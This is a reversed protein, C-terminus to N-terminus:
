ESRLTEAPNSAAARISKYGVTVLAIVLTSLIGIAFATWGIDIRYAFGKLWNNMFYWAVPAAIIFALMILKVFEKSFMVMISATSAGLVKRIGVEKLKQNAMFSILGYLGLCGIFISVGAFVKFLTFTREDQRYLSALHEDLFQYEFYYEPFLETWHKEIAKITENFNDGRVQIGCEYYFTPLNMLIVPKINEHLSAIHFDGVVGIVEAKISYVGTIIVKGVAEAPNNFGLQRAAAETIVYSFKREGEPVSPDAMKEDAETFWRGAKLPINYTELYHHDVPKIGTSYGEHSLDKDALTFSTGFNNTSTPAGLSFTMTSIGPLGELRARLSEMLEKKPEPIPINIIAERSFGLSKSKFFNMQQAVIITGIILVQAILFQFVVLVKRVSAGSSGQSSIKNKLVAVPNFGSLIIAPYFGSLLSAFVVLAVLFVLLAPSTFLDLSLDKDLFGNLWSLLWESACLSILTSLLTLLLTESLFYFTLQSRKAGLTKRIGIEKSKRIALATALNIFNICAIALIFVGLVGMVILESLNINLGGGPTEAYTKNFHIDKLPQLLFTKRTASEKDMYKENFIKMRTEVDAKLMGAPLVVYTYGAATISWQDLPMGAIFDKTLSPFSIVMSFRIHSNSPPDQIIGAVDVDFLNNIRLTGQDKGGLLTNALSQTIFVKGPQGLDVRPNGSLVNFDFIDFFLSDAFIARSVKQRTDNVKVTVEDQYHIQTTLPIDQFDNRFAKAMPYPTTSGYSEGDADRSIQVVRYISEHKEHFRDFAIEYRIILFIVICSTIGISLGLMNILTYNRNRLFNRLTILLYNKIM